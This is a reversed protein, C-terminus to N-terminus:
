SAVTDPAPLYSQQTGHSDSNSSPPAPTSILRDHFAVGPHEIAFHRRLLYRRGPVWEFKKCVPCLERSGHVDKRHRQLGQRQTFGAHCVECWYKKPIRRPTGVDPLLPIVEVLHGSLRRSKTFSKVVDRFAGNELRLEPVHLTHLAPLVNPYDRDSPGLTRLIDTTHAGAARFVAAGGFARMLEVWRECEMDDRRSPSQTSDIRLDQVRSLFPSFQNCIQTISSLQWDLEECSIHLVLLPRSGRKSFSISITNASTIIDAQSLSTQIEIREIFKALQSVDM